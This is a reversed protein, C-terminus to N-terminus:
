RPGASTGQPRSAPSGAERAAAAARMASLDNERIAREIASRPAADLTGSSLPRAPGFLSALSVAAVVGAAISIWRALALVPLAQAEDESEAPAHLRAMVADTFGASMAPVPEQPDIWSSMTRLESAAGRCARCDMLHARVEEAESRGLEGDHFASLRSRVHSCRM